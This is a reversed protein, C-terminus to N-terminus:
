YMNFIDIDLLSDDFVFPITICQDGDLTRLRRLRSREEDISNGSYVLEDITPLEFNKKYVNYAVDPIRKKKGTRMRYENLIHCVDLPTKMYIIYIYYGNMRAIDIYEKRTKITPNTNDICINGGSSVLKRVQSICQRKTGPGGDKGITDQSVISYGNSEIYRNVFSSKTSAPPGVMIIMTKNPQDLDLSKIFQTSYENFECCDILKQMKIARETKMARETKIIDGNMNEDLFYQEPTEFEVDIHEGYRNKVYNKINLTFRLDSDSFDGSRGAADGVYVLREYTFEYQDLFRIFMGLGPKRNNDKETAIYFCIPVNLEREIVKLKDEIYSLRNSKKLAGQNSFIM